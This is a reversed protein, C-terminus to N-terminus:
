ETVPATQLVECKIISNEELGQSSLEARLQQRASLFIPVNHPHLMGSSHSNRLTLVKTGIRNEDSSHGSDKSYCSTSAKHLENFLHMSLYRISYKDSMLHEIM